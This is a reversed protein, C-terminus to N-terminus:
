LANDLIVRDRWESVDDSVARVAQAPGTVTFRVWLWWSRREEYRVGDLWRRRIMQRVEAADDTAVSIILPKEV